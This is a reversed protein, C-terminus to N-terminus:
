GSLIGQGQSAFRLLARSITAPPSQGGYAVIELTFHELSPGFVSFTLVSIRLSSAIGFFRHAELSKLFGQPV